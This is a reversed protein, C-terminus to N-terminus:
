EGKLHITKYKEQWIENAPSDDRTGKNTPLLQNLMYQIYYIHFLFTYILGFYVKMKLHKNYHEDLIYRARFALRLIIWMTALEMLPPGIKLIVFMTLDLNTMYDFSKPSDHAGSIFSLLAFLSSVILLLRIDSKTIKKQSSFGNLLNQQRRYWIASYIGGTILTLFIVLLVSKRGSWKTPKLDSVIQQNSPSQVVSVSQGCKPCFQAKERLQAGCNDCFM